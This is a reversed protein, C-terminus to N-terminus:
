DEYLAVEAFKDAKLVMRRAPIDASVIITKLLPFAVTGGSASTVTFIDAGGRATIDTVIGLASGDDLFVNCGLVDSIFWRDEPLRIDEKPVCVFKNRYNEAANRDAIGKLALYVGDAVRASLIKFEEGDIFIRKLTCFTEASDLMPLVKLEGKIGQPKVIKGITIFAM